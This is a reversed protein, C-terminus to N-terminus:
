FSLKLGLQIARNGGSGLVPNEAAVDPTICGCGMGFGGSPDNNAYGNPGGYPNAFSPHNFINFFEARFQANLREKFRWTKTISIDLNKFGSDRFSNRGANGFTGLAPPILASNGKYYCGVNNLTNVAGPGLATAGSM